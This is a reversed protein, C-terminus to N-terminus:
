HHGEAQPVDAELTELFAEAGTVGQESVAAVKPEAAAVVPESADYAALESALDAPVTPAKPTPPM